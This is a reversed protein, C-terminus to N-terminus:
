SSPRRRRVDKIHVSPSQAQVRKLIDESLLDWNSFYHGITLRDRPTRILILVDALKLQRVETLDIVKYRLGFYEVSHDHVSLRSRSYLWLVAGALVFVAALAYVASPNRIADKRLAENWEIVGPVHLALFASLAWNLGAYWRLGNGM